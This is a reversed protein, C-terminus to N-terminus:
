GSSWSICVAETGSRHLIICGTGCVSLCVSLCDPLMSYLSTLGFLTYIDLMIM